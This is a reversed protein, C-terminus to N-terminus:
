CRVTYYNKATTEGRPQANPYTPISHPFFNECQEFSQHRCQPHEELIGAYRVRMIPTWAVSVLIRQPQAWRRATRAIKTRRCCRKTSKPGCQGGPANAIGFGLVQRAWLREMLWQHGPSEIHAQRSSRPMGVDEATGSSCRHRRAPSLGGLVRKTSRRAIAVTRSGLGSADVADTANSVMSPLAESLCGCVAEGGGSRDGCGCGTHERPM